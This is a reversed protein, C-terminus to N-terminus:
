RGCGSLRVDRSKVWSSPPSMDKEPGKGVPRMEERHNKARAQRVLDETGSYLVVRTGRGVRQFSGPWQEREPHGGLM